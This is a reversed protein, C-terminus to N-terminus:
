KAIPYVKAVCFLSERLSRIAFAFQNEHEENVIGFTDLAAM